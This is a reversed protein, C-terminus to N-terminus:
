FRRGFMSGAGWTPGSRRIPGKIPEQADREMEKREAEEVDDGGWHYNEEIRPEPRVPRKEEQASDDLHPDEGDWGVQNDGDKEEKREAEDPQKLPETAAVNPMATGRRVAAQGAGAKAEKVSFARREGEEQARQKRLIRWPVSGTSEGEGQFWARRERPSDTTWDCLAPKAISNPIRRKLVDAIPDNTYKRGSTPKWSNYLPSSRVAVEPDHYSPTIHVMYQEDNALVALPTSEYLRAADGSNSLITHFGAPNPALPHHRLNRFHEVTGHRQIHQLITTRQLLTRPAPEVTLFLSRTALEAARKSVPRSM